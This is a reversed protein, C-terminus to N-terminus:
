VHYVSLSEKDDNGVSERLDQVDYHCWDEHSSITYTTIVAVLSLLFSLPHPSKREKQWHPIAITGLFNSM